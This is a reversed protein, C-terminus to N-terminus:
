AARRQLHLQFYEDRPRPRDAAPGDPVPALMGLLTVADLLREAVVTALATTVGIEKRRGVLWARAFEGVRGPLISNFAFCIMLPRFVQYGKLDHHPRFLLGWRVARLYMSYYFGVLGPLMWIWHFKRFALGVDAAKVNRTSLWLFFATVALGGALLGYKRYKM